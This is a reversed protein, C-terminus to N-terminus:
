SRKAVAALRVPRTLLAFVLAALMTVGAFLIPASADGSADRLYGAFGPLVGMVGYYWTYFLGMGIARNEPRIVESALAMIPGAPAWALVGFALIALLPSPGSALAWCAAAGAVLCVTIVPGPCNWRQALFGGLPITVVGLWTGISILQGAEAVGFARATLHSPGFSVILILGVNFLSWSLAAISIGVLEQRSLAGLRGAAPGATGVAPPSGYSVAILVLGLLSALATLYLVAPWGFAVALAGQTALGIAIGFPWSNVLIAMALVVERGDFWDLTMKTLYVNLLVAGIGSLLRGVFATAYSEAAGVLTGGLAMLALGLIVIARDSYRRGLTGSPLSLVAGPLKFLGILTGLMAFDIALTEILFPSVSAVSQFQFGMATRALFLVALITWRSRGRRAETM